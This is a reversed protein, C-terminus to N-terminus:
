GLNFCLFCFSGISGLCKTDKRDKDWVDHVARKKTDKTAMGEKNGMRVLIEVLGTIITTVKPL